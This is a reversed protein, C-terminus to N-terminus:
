LSAKLNIGFKWFYNQDLKDTGYLLKALWRRKTPELWIINGNEASVHKHWKVLFWFFPITKVRYATSLLEINKM